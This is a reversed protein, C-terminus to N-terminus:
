TSQRVHGGRSPREDTPLINHTNRFLNSPDYRAKVASLRSHNPGYASEVRSASDDGLNNVYVAPELFPQMSEFLSRTWAVNASDDAVDEWQSLILFDYQRARHAFATATPSVRSALGGMQQLGIGSFASPIQSAYSLVTEIAGDSLDRLFSAKWYHRRGRPYGEDSASQLDAYPVPAIGDWTPPGLSRLPAVITEGLEPPGCYCVAISVVPQHESDLSISASMSLDDPSTRALEHYLRLADRAQSPPYTVGGGLVVSIPHLRFRFSTVVGFNGGGGRLAWFLDAHETDNVILIQGEATVVEAELLNDCTLGHRGNLWGIGGGLALGALGTVSVVGTTTALGHDQTARDFEGLTLGSQVHAVRKSPDIWVQKMASLDVVIGDACVAHGAVSHGGGKVSLPVNLQRAWDIAIQVDTSDACRVIAAPHRDIMANFVRRADEYDQQGPRLLAGTLGPLAFDSTLPIVIV